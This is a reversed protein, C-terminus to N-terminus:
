PDKRYFGQQFSGRAVTKKLTQFKELYHIVSLNHDFTKGFGIGPDLIIRDEKIGASEARAVADNLFDIIERLLNDYRPHLQMNEPTGQMHMLIVPVDAKAAVAAMHPDLRFASIDNIMAAGADLAELAVRSKHTDISIPIPIEKNLERIVPIVRATEEEAPLRRSYPRTSEGGIDIIDAGEQAMAVGRAVARAPSFYRGGDSFSDPTVNLVGMLHTRSNLDLRYKDWKLTFDM